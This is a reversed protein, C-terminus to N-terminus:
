YFDELNYRRHTPIHLPIPSSLAKATQFQPLDAILHLTVSKPGKRSTLHLVSAFFVKALPLPPRVWTSLGPLGSVQLCNLMKLCKLVLQPSADPSLVFICQRIDAAVNSSPFFFINTPHTLFFFSINQGGCPAGTIFGKGVPHDSCALASESLQNTGM